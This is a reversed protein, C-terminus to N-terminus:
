IVVMLQSHGLCTVYFRLNICINHKQVHDMTREKDLFVTRKINYSVVNRLRSEAETKLYFRILQAWDISNTGIESTPKAQLRLCFATESINQKSIYVPCHIIDLFM